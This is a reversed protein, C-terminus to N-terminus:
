LLVAICFVSVSDYFQKPQLFGKCDDFGVKLAAHALEGSLWTGLESNVNGYVSFNWSAGSDRLGLAWVPRIGLGSIVKLLFFVGCLEHPWPIYFLFGLGGFFDSFDWTYLITISNIVKCFQIVTLVASLLDLVQDADLFSM